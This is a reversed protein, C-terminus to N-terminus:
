EALAVSSAKLLNGNLLVLYSEIYVSNWCANLEDEQRVTYKVVASAYTLIPLCYSEQLSLHVLENLDKARAYICNCASFFSRRVSETNFNLSKGHNIMVGLYKISQVWPISVDGLTMPTIALKASKGVAICHSKSPNFQLSLDNTISMCLDLMNQLGNVSPCILLMDDAYLLCGIFLSNIHCGIDLQRLRVVFLNIFINFLSPSLVSGQRVGSTVSFCYSFCSGWRVKVFLKSYWNELLSVIPSPIGAQLLSDFLKNHVVSDFAKKIDLSAMFISSGNNTFHDVTTRLAFIAETCGMGRKFGFQLEDISLFEDCILPLFNEFVKSIVPILTIARYNDVDNLNRSKDKVLPVIIGHGFASPVYRHIIFLKFLQVLATTLCPHAYLLHEACLEDPGCAKGLSLKLISAQVNEVTVQQCIDNVSLNNVKKIRRPLKLVPRSKQVDPCSSTSHFHDAFKDAIEVDSVCGSFCIDKSLNRRFKSNWSKWFQSPCKNLFHEYLEDNHRGEFEIYSDRIALKYKLKTICDRLGLHSAFFIGELRLFDKAFRRIPRTFL